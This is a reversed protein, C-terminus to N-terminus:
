VERYFVAGDPVDYYRRPEEDVSSGMPQEHYSTHYHNTRRPIPAPPPIHTRPSAIRAREFGRVLEYDQDQDSASLLMDRRPQFTSYRRSTSPFAQLSAEDSSGLETNRVEQRRHITFPEEEKVLQRRTSSRLPSQEGAFSVRRQLTPMESRCTEIEDEVDRSVRLVRVSNTPRQHSRRDLSTSAYAGEMDRRHFAIPPSYSRERSEIVERREVRYPANHQVLSSASGRRIVPRISNLERALNGDYGYEITRVKRPRYSEAVTRRTTRDYDDRHVRVSVPREYDFLSSGRSRSRSRERQKVYRTGEIVKVVEVPRRKRSQRVQDPEIFVRIGTSESSGTLSRSRNRSVSRTEHIVRIEEKSPSSTRYTVTSDTDDRHRRRRHRYTKRGKDYRHVHRVRRAEEESDESSTHKRICRRCTGSKPFEGPALPHRSQYSASRYKGCSSCSHQLIREDAQGRHTIVKTTVSDSVVQRELVPPSYQISRPYTHVTEQAM